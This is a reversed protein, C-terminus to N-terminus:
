PRWDGLAHHLDGLPAQWDGAATQRFLRASPYWPSDSRDLFWYWHAGSGRPVLVWVPRGLGGAVHVTTNSVSIVLDMAAVQSAFRDLDGGSDIERDQIIEVGTARASREIEEGCDGYQLSIFRAAPTRLIEGWQSLDLSKFRGTAGSASRWSIGILRKDGSSDYRRRLAATLSADAHLYGDHRPFSALDPRLLQAADTLPLHVDFNGEIPDGMAAVRAGPFSRAFLNRLRKSCVITVHAALRILEPLLSAFLIEDGLGYELWVLVRKGALSTGTWPKDATLDPAGALAKVRARYSPWAESLRGLTLLTLGRNALAPPFQPKLALASAYDSLAGEHDGAFRKASGRNTYANESHPDAAIAQTHLAIAQALEGRLEHVRGLATLVGAHDPQDTRIPSLIAEAEDARGAELLGEALQLSMQTDQPMGRLFLRYLPEARDFRGQKHIASLLLRKAELHTPVKALLDMLVAEAEAYREKQALLVALSTYAAPHSPYQLTCARLIREAEDLEGLSILCASLGVQGLRHTPESALLRRFVDRAEASQGSQRLANALRMLSEASHGALRSAERFFPISKEATGSRLWASGIMEVTPLHSPRLRLAQELHTLADSFDGVEICAAGLLYLLQPENPCSSLLQRYSRAAEAFRGQQHAATADKLASDFVASNESSLAM